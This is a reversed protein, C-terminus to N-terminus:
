DRSQKIAERSTADYSSSASCEEIIVMEIGDRSRGVNNLFIRTIGVHAPKLLRPLALIILLLIRFGM